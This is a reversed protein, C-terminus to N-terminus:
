CICIFPQFSLNNNGRVGCKIKRQAVWEVTVVTSKSKVSDNHRFRPKLNPKSSHDLFYRYLFHVRSCLRMFFWVYWYSGSTGPAKGLKCDYVAKVGLLSYSLHYDITRSLLSVGHYGEVYMLADAPQGKEEMNAKTGEIERQTFFCM